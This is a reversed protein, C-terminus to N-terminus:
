IDDDQRSCGARYLRESRLKCAAYLRNNEADPLYTRERTGDRLSALAAEYSEYLGLAVAASVFAGCATAQESGSRVLRRGTVDCLIQNYIDSKCLGGAVAISEASRCAAPLVDISKGIEMAIGEYLARIMDRRCTALSFGSFIARADPNWDRSGCGQLHPVALLGHSGPPTASAIRNVADFDPPDSHYEPFFERILWNLASASAIINMEQTYRGPIAAVNCIVNQNELCPEDVLSIVFSGTGSNVEITSGDLVGLGLAGCQQDGGASVVPVGAPIGTLHSFCENVYGIVSGQDRLECLKDMDINFLRCLQSDWELSRIDMLHTRSGYTRDTLFRGTMFNIIYDPVIMAKCARSYIDSANEKLWTLKSATFVTNVKAGSRRYILENEHSLRRCIGSNRTDQWMIFSCLAEGQRDVLTPASRFATISIADVSYGTAIARCIDAAGRRYIDPDQEIFSTQADILLPTSFSEGAIMQGGEDFLIGRMSTTGVDLVLINMTCDRAERGAHDLPQTRFIM